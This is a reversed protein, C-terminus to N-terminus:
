PNATSALTDQQLDKSVQPRRFTPLKEEKAEVGIAATNPSTQM